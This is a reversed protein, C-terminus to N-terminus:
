QLQRQEGHSQKNTQKQQPCLMYRRQGRETDEAVVVMEMREVPWAWKRLLELSLTKNIM